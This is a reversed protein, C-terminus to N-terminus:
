YFNKIYKKYRVEVHRSIAFQDFEKNCPISSKYTNLPCTTKVNITPKYHKVMDAHDKRVHGKLCKPTYFTKNCFTCKKEETNRKIPIITQKLRNVKDTKQTQLSRAMAFSNDKSNM